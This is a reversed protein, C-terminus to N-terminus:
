SRRTPESIHILSLPCDCSLSTVREGRRQVVVHYINSGSVEAEAIAGDERLIAVQGCEFYEQGRTLIWPKFQKRWDVMYAEEWCKGRITYCIRNSDALSGIGSKVFIELEELIRWIFLFIVGMRFILKMRASRVAGPCSTSTCYMAEIAMQSYGPGHRASQKGFVCLTFYGDFRDDYLVVGYHHM